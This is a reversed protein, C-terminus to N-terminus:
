TVLLCSRLDMVESAQRLRTVSATICATPVKKLTRVTPAVRGAARFHALGSESIRLRPHRLIMRVESDPCQSALAVAESEVCFEAIQPQIAFGAATRTGTDV